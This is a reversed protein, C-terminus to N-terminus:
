AAGLATLDALTIQSGSIVTQAAGTAAIIFALTDGVMDAQVDFEFAIVQPTGLVVVTQSSANANANASCTATSGDAAVKLITAGSAFRTSVGSLVAVPNGVMSGKFPKSTACTITPSGSTVSADTAICTTGDDAPNSMASFGAIVQSQTVNYLTASWTGSGVTLNSQIGASLRARHGTVIGATTVPWSISYDGVSGRVITPANGKWKTSTMLGYCWGGTTNGSATFKDSGASTGCVDPILLNPNYSASLPARSPGPISNLVDALADGMVKAGTSTPHTGDATYATVYNNDAPNVLVSHYDVIPVRLIRAQRKIWENYQTIWTLGAGSANANNPPVTTLIPVIGANVLATIITTINAKSDAVTVGNGLDNTVEGVICYDWNSLLVNPLHTSIMQATTYGNTAAVGGAVFKGRTKLLATGMPSLNGYSVTGSLTKDYYSLTGNNTISAGLQGIVAPGPSKLRLNDAAVRLATEATVANARATAEAALEADTTFDSANHTVIDGFTASETELSDLRGDLATDAADVYNKWVPPLPATPDLTAPDVEVLDDYDVPGPGNPVAFYWRKGRRIRETARWAWDGEVTPALEVTAAGDVLRVSFADPLVISGEIDRRKSPAFEVTGVAPVDDGDQSPVTLAINVVCDTM